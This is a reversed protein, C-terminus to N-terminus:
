RSRDYMTPQQSATLALNSIEELLSRYREAERQSDHLRQELSSNNEKLRELEAQM